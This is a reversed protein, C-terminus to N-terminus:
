TISIRVLASGVSRRLTWTVRRARSNRRSTGGSSSLAATPCAANSPQPRAAAVRDVRVSKIAADTGASSLGRPEQVAHMHAVLLGGLGRLLQMARPLLVGVRVQEEDLQAQQHVLM